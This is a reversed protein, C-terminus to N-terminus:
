KKNGNPDSFYSKEDIMVNCRPPEEVKLKSKFYTTCQYWDANICSVRKMEPHSAFTYESLSWCAKYKFKQGVAYELWKSLDFPTIWYNVDSTIVNECSADNNPGIHREASCTFSSENDDTGTCLVKFTGFPEGNSITQTTPWQFTSNPIQAWNKLDDSRFAQCSVWQSPSNTTVTTKVGNQDAFIVVSCSWTGWMMKEDWGDVGDWWVTWVWWMWDWWLSLNTNTDGPYKWMSGDTVVDQTVFSYRGMYGNSWLLAVLM